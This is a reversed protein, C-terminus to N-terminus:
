TTLPHSISNNHFDHHFVTITLASGLYIAMVASASFCIHTLLQPVDGHGCFCFFCTHTLLRSVNGHSWFFFAYTHTLRGSLLFVSLCWFAVLCGFCSSYFPFLICSKQLLRRLLIWQQLDRPYCPQQCRPQLIGSWLMAQIHSILFFSHSYVRFSVYLLSKIFVIYIKFAEYLNMIFVRESYNFFIKELILIKFIPMEM